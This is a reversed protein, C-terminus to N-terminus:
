LLIRLDCWEYFGESFRSKFGKNETIIKGRAEPTYFYLVTVQLFFRINEPLTNRDRAELHKWLFFAEDYRLGQFIQINKTEFSVSRLSIATYSITIM